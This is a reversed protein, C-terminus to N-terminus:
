FVAAIAIVREGSPEHSIFVVFANDVALASCLTRGVADAVEQTWTIPSGPVAVVRTTFDQTVIVAADVNYGSLEAEPVPEFDLEVPAGCYWFLARPIGAADSENAVITWDGIKLQM